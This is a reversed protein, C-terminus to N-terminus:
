RENDIMIMIEGQRQEGAILPVVAVVVGVAVRRVLLPAHRGVAVDVVVVVPVLVSSAVVAVPSRPWAVVRVRRAVRRSVAAAPAPTVLSVMTM